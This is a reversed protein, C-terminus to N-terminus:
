VLRLLSGGAGTALALLSGDDLWGCDVLSRGAETLGAHTNQHQAFGLFIVHLLIFYCIYLEGFLHGHQCHSCRLAHPLRAHLRCPQAPAEIPGRSLRLGSARELPDASPPLPPSSPLTLQAKRVSTQGIHVALLSTDLVLVAGDAVVCLGSCPPM